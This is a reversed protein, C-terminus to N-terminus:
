EELISDYIIKSIAAIIDANTKDTEHSDMVLVAIYYKKHDPLIIFGADNDAIKIGEPTRDSSGTKHGVSTTPPLLGKLKNNGTSTETMIKWLFEKYQISFLMQSDVLSMLRVIEVPTSWNLYSNKIDQHMDDETVVLNCEKIGLSAIYNNVSSIGGAYEILIDCANNDSKSVSYKLLERLSIFTDQHLCTERLPSYTNPKLQTSSVFIVSDLSTKERDMKKLVALAIHFKFVSLLPFHNDNNYSFFVGSDKFVAVGVTCQKEKLLTDIRYKINNGNEAKILTGSFLLLITLCLGTVLKM